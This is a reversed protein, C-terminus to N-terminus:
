ALADRPYADAVALQSLGTRMALARLPGRSPATGHHYPSCFCIPWELPRCRLPGRSPRHHLLTLLPPPLAPPCHHVVPSLLSLVCPLPPHPVAPATLSRSRPRPRLDPTASLRIPVFHPLPRRTPTAPWQRRCRSGLCFAAHMTTALPEHRHGPPHCSDCSDSLLM